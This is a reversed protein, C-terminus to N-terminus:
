TNSDFLLRNEQFIAPNSSFDRAFDSAAQSMKQYEKDGMVSCLEILRIWQESDDLTVDWGVGKEKLSRWPTQDSILVPCGSSFAEVIAHGFNEGNTSMIFFHSKDLITFIEKPNVAGNYSVNINKSMKAIEIQCSTWYDHDNIPGYIDLHIEGDGRYKNLLKLLYLLNKEPSVRAVNVFRVSGSRKVRVKSKASLKKAFQRAIVIKKFSRIHSRVAEGEEADAVHFVTNKYLGLLNVLWIFFKKKLGKHKFAHNSLMGHPNVIVTKKNKAFIVPLISFFLSYIGNVYLYDYEEQSVIRKIFFFSVYARTAYLVSENVSIEEWQNSKVGLYEEKDAYDCNTTIIRFQYDSKLQEVFNVFATTIGGAKYGPKYWDIFCLVKIRSNVM